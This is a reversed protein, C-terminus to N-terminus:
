ITGAKAMPFEKLYAKKNRKADEKSEPMVLHELSMKYKHQGLELIM